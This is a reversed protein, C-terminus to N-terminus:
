PKEMAADIAARLRDRAPLYHMPHLPNYHWDMGNWVRAKELQHVAFEADKRLAEVEERLERVCEPCGWAAHTGAGHTDCHWWKPVARLREIESDRATITLEYDGIAVAQQELADAAEGMVAAFPFDLSAEAKLSNARLRESLDSM